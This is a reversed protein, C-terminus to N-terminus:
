RTRMGANHQCSHPTARNGDDAREHDDVSTQPTLYGQMIWCVAFALTSVIAAAIILEYRWLLLVFRFSVSFDPPMM